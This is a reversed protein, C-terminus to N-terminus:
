STKPQRSASAPLDAWQKLAELDVADEGDLFRALDDLSDEGWLLEGDAIMAPIGFVGADVGVQTQSVLRQKHAPAGAAALLAAADFGADSLLQAVVQPDDIGPGGAWVARFLADILARQRAAPLELSALRLGLLPNFPHSPPPIMPVGLAAARRSVQKFAHIRKPAIEAPGLQGWHNLLSAFLVPRYVVARGRDEVIAHVRQWALYAYPSIFDFWFEVPATM